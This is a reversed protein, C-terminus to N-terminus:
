VQLVPHTVTDDPDLAHGDERIERELLSKPTNRNDSTLATTSSHDIPPPMSVAPRRPWRYAKKMERFFGVGQFNVM